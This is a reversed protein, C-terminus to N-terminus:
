SLDRLTGAISEPPCRGTQRLGKRVQHVHEATNSVVFFLTFARAVPAAVELPLADM